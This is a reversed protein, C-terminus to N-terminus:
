LHLGPKWSWLRRWCPHFRMPSGPGGPHCNWTATGKLHVEGSDRSPLHAGGPAGPVPLRVGPRAIFKAETPDPQLRGQAQRRPWNSILDRCLGCHRVHGTVAGPRICETSSVKSGSLEYVFFSVCLRYHGPQRTLPPQSADAGKRPHVHGCRTPSPGAQGPQPQAQCQMGRKCGSKGTGPGGQAKTTAPTASPLRGTYAAPDPSVLTWKATTHKARIQDGALCTQGSSPPKTQTSQKRQEPSACVLQACKIEDTKHM